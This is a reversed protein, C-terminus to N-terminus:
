THREIYQVNSCVKKKKRNQSNREKEKKEEVAGVL